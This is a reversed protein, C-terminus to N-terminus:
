ILGAKAAKVTGKAVGTVTNVTTPFFAKAGVYLLMSGAIFEGVRVWTFSETLRHALDEIGTLPNTVPSTLPNASAATHNLSDAKGQAEAKTSYPGAVAGRPRSTASVVTFLAPPGILRNIIVGATGQPIVWWEVVGHPGVVPFGQGVTM